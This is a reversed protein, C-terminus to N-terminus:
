SAISTRRSNSSSYRVCSEPPVADYCTIVDGTLFIGLLEPTEWESPKRRDCFLVISEPSMNMAAAHRARLQGFTAWSNMEYESEGDFLSRADSETIITVTNIEPFRVFLNVDATVFISFTEETVEVMTGSVQVKVMLDVPNGNCSTQRCKVIMRDYSTPLLTSVELVDSDGNDLRTLASGLGTAKWERTRWAPVRAEIMEDIEELSRNTMEPVYLFVLVLFVCSICGYVLGVKAGLNAYGPQILYPLTFTVLFNCANAVSWHLMFSKDRLSTHPLESKVVQMTSGFGIMYFVPFVITMALLVKDQVGDRRKMTGLGGMIMLSALMMSGVVLCMRRRGIREVFVVVFVCAGVILGRKIMTASFPDMINLQKLFVAGYTSAFAQGTLQTSAAAMMGVLTRRKNSGKLMESWRGKTSSAEINDMILRAEREAPYGKEAGRLYVISDVAEDFRGKRLLWRPSEPLLWLTLLVTAPFIAILATPLQWSVNGEMKSTFNTVVSAVFAALIHSFAWTAVVSGRIAAPVIEAMYMPVLYAEMGVHLYLVLRGGLAQQYTKALCSLVVGGVCVVNMVAVVIRRGWRESILSGIVIGIGYTILPFSNLYALRPASIFFKGTKTNREGFQKEYHNMAQVTAVVATEFGFTFVSFLLVFMAGILNSTVHKTVQVNHHDRLYKLVM